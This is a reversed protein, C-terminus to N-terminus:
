FKLNIQLVLIFSILLPLSLLSFIIKEAKEFTLSQIIAHMRQLIQNREQVCRIRHTELEKSSTLFSQDMKWPREEQVNEKRCRKSEQFCNERAQKEHSCSQNSRHNQSKRSNWELSSSPKGM